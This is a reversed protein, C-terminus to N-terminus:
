SSYLLSELLFDYRCLSIDFDFWNYVLLTLYKKVKLDTNWYVSYESNGNTGIM